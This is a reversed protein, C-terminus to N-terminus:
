VRVRETDYLPASLIMKLIITKVRKQRTPKLSLYIIKGIHSFDRQKWMGEESYSIKRMEMM